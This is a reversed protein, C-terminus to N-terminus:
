NNHLLTEVMNFGGREKTIMTFKALGRDMISIKFQLQNTFEVLLIKKKADM